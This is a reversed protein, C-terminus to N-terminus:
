SPDQWLSTDLLYRRAQWQNQSRCTKSNGSSLPPLARGGGSSCQQIWPCVVEGACADSAQLTHMGLALTIRCLLEQPHKVSASILDCQIQPYAQRFGDGPGGRGFGRGRGGGFPPASGMKAYPQPMPGREGMMPGQVCTCNTQM